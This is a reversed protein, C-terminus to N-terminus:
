VFVTAIDRGEGCCLGKGFGKSCFGLFLVMVLFLCIGEGGVGVAWRPRAAAPLVEPQRGAFAHVLMCVM